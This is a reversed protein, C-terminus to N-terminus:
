LHPFQAETFKLPKLLSVYGTPTFGLNFTCRDSELSMGRQSAGRHSRDDRPLACVIEGLHKCYCLATTADVLFSSTHDMVM